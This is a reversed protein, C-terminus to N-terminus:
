DFPYATTTRITQEGLRLGSATREVDFEVITGGYNPAGWTLRYSGPDLLGTWEALTIAEGDSLPPREAMSGAARLADGPGVIEWHADFAADAQAPSGDNHLGLRITVTGVDDIAMPATFTILPERVPSLSVATCATLAATLLLLLHIYKHM